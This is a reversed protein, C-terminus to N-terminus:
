NTVLPIIVYFVEQALLHSPTDGNVGNENKMTMEVREMQKQRARVSRSQIENQAENGDNSWVSYYMGIINIEFMEVIWVM